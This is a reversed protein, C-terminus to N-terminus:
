AAMERSEQFIVGHEAGWATIIEILDSMEAKSLDSSSRGLSVFGNGDLNPVMRVERKLADLFMLKWDEPSLRIGHWQVQESIETLMAWLKANQPRTRKPGQFTVRTDHPARKIWDLAKARIADNHLVLLARGM